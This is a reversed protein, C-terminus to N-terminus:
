SLLPAHTTYRGRTIAWYERQGRPTAGIEVDKDLHFYKYVVQNVTFDKNAM